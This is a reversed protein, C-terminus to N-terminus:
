LFKSIIGLVWSLISLGLGIISIVMGATALGKSKSTLGKKGNAIGLGGAVVGAIPLLIGMFSIIGLVLSIIAKSSTDHTYVPIPQGSNNMQQGSNSINNSGVQPVDINNTEYQESDSPLPQKFLYILKDVKAKLASKPLAGVFGTLGMEGSYVGPLWAYKLWAELMLRGDQYTYKVFQPASLSGTGHQWLGEGKIEKFHFDEKTFFDNAMYNIFETPKNLQIEIRFRAM